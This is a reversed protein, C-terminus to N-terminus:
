EELEIGKKSLKARIFAERFEPDRMKEMLM